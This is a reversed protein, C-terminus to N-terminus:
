GKQIQKNTLFIRNPQNKPFFPGGIREPNGDGCRHLKELHM